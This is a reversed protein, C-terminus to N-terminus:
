ILRKVVHLCAASVVVLGPSLIRQGVGERKKIRIEDRPRQTDELQGATPSQRSVSVYLGVCCKLVDLFGSLVMIM